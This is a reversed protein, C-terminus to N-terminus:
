QRSFQAWVKPFSQFVHNKGIDGLSLSFTKSPNLVLTTGFKQNIIYM